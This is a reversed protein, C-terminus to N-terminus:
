TTLESWAVPLVVLFAALSYCLCAAGPGAVHAMGLYLGGIAILKWDRSM